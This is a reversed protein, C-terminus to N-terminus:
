DHQHMDETQTSGPGVSSKVSKRWKTLRATWLVMTEKNRTGKNVM